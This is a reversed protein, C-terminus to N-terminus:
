GAKQKRREWALKAAESYRKKMEETRVKGRNAESIKPFSKGKKSESLKKRTEESVVHGKNLGPHKKGYNGNIMGIHRFKERTEPDPNKAKWRMKTMRSIFNDKTGMGKFIKVLIENDSNEEALLRHAEWHDSYSVLVLNSEDDTGGVSKPLIHHRHGEAPDITKTRCQEIFEAYTM